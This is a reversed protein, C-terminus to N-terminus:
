EAVPPDGDNEACDVICSRDTCKALCAELSGQTTTRDFDVDGASEEPELACGGLTIAAVFGLAIAKKALYTNSM